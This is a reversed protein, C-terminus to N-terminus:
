EDTIASWQDLSRVPTGIGVSADGESVVM